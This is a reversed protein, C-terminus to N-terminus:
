STEPKPILGTRTASKIDVRKLEQGGSARDVAM